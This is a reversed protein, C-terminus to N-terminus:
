RTLRSLKGIAATIAHLTYMYTNGMCLERMRNALAPNPEQTWLCALM